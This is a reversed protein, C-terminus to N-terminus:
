ESRYCIRHPLPEARTVIKTSCRSGGSNNDDSLLALGQPKDIYGAMDRVRFAEDDASGLPALREHQVRQVFDRVNLVGRVAEQVNTIDGLRADRINKIAGVIEGSKIRLIEFEEAAYLGAVLM